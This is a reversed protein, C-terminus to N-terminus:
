NAVANFGDICNRLNEAINKPDSILCEGGNAGSKPSDDAPASPTQIAPQPTPAKAALKPPAAHKLKKNAAQLELQLQQKEQGSQLLLWAM